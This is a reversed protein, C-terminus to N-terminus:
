KLRSLVDQAAKQHSDAKKASVGEGILRKKGDVTEWIKTYVLKDVKTSVYEVKAKLPHVDYYEKLRTKADFLDEYKLSINKSDYITSLIDQVISYGVGTRISTDLIYETAGFFSEFCDELLDKKCSYKEDETARIFPWFGLKEAEESLVQRSVYKIRVRAVKKVGDPCKLEPFRRYSYWVIFKNISVDGLQEFFEYNEKPNHTKSTFATEYLKLNSPTLLLDIYKDKMKGMKLVNKIVRKFSMKTNVKLVKIMDKTFDNKRKSISKFM